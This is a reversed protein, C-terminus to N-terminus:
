KINPIPIDVFWMMIMGFIGGILAFGTILKITKESPNENVNGFNNVVFLGHHNELFKGGNKFFIFRVMLIWIIIISFHFILVFANMKAPQLYDFVSSTFGFTNGFGVILWPIIGFILFNKFILNYGNEKEPHDIILKAAKKKFTFVNFITVLIFLIWFNKFLIEM